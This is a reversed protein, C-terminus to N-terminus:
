PRLAAAEAALRSIAEWDGSGVHEAPTVWSGGVCAVNACALYSTARAADIGGTPCFVLDPLPGALAKLAAVGGSAEAPFFKLHLHGREALAM